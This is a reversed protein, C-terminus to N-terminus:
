SSRARRARLLQLAAIGLAALALMGMPSAVILVRGQHIAQHAAVHNAAAAGGVAAVGLRRRASAFALAPLLSFL